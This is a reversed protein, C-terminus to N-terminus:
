CIGIIINYIFLIDLRFIWHNRFGISIGNLSVSRRETLTHQGHRVFAYWGITCTRYSIWGTGITSSIAIIQRVCVAHKTWTLLFSRRPLICAEDLFIWIIHLIVLCVPISEGNAMSKNMFFSHSMTTTGTHVYILTCM